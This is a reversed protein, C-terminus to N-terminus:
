IGRASTAYLAYCSYIVGDEGTWTEITFRGEIEVSRTTYSASTGEDMYVQMNHCIKAGPGFCCIQNDRVLVFEQIGEAKYTPLMIGRLRVRAGDLAEIEDTLLERQFPQDPEVEFAFDDFSVVRVVDQQLVTPRISPPNAPPSTQTSSPPTANEEGAESESSAVIRSSADQGTASWLAAGLAACLLLAPLWFRASALLHQPPHPENM